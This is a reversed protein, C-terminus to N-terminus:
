VLWSDLHEQGGPIGKRPRGERKGRSPEATGVQQLARGLQRERWGLSPQPGCSNMHTRKERVRLEKLSVGIATTDRDNWLRACPKVRVEDRTSTIKFLNSYAWTQGLHPPLVRSSILYEGIVVTLFVLFSCHFELPSQNISSKQRWKLYYWNCFSILVKEM